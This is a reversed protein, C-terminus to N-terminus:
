WEGILTNQTCEKGTDLSQVEQSSFENEVFFLSIHWILVLGDIKQKKPLSLEWNGM